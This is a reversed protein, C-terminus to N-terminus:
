QRYEVKQRALMRLVSDWEKLGYDAGRQRRKHEAAKQLIDDTIAVPEENLVRSAVEIQCARELYYM